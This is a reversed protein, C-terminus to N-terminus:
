PQTAKLGEIVATTFGYREMANLGKITFGGPTTVKDIEAEPHSGSTKLLSVTGTLTQCVIEKAQDAKFGLEVGGECAARIYRMAFAIGCSALAMGAPLHKEDTLMVVGLVNFLSSTKLPNGTVPVVFTMSEKVAMATNPIATSLNEPVIDGFFSKLEESSIGAAISCVESKEPNIFGRIEKIVEPIIWPKVCLVVLDTDKVAETNNSFIRVGKDKYSYIKELHPNSISLNSPNFKKDSLLGNAIATGMAGAGIICIKTNYLDM